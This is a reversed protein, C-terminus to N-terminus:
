RSTERTDLCASLTVLWCLSGGFVSANCYYLYVCVVLCNMLPVYHFSWFCPQNGTISICATMDGEDTCFNLGECTDNTSSQSLGIGGSKGKEKEQVKGGDDTKKPM